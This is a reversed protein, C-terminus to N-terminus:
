LSYFCFRVNKFNKQLSQCLDIAKNYIGMVNALFMFLYCFYCLKHSFIGAKEIMKRCIQRKKQKM